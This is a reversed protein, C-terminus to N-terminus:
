GRMTFGWLSFLNKWSKIQVNGEDVWAGAAPLSAISRGWIVWTADGVSGPGDLQYSSGWKIDRWASGAEEFYGWLGGAKEKTSERYDPLMWVFTQVMRPVNAFSYISITHGRLISLM